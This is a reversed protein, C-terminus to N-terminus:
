RGLLTAEGQVELVKFGAALLEPMARGQITVVRNFQPTAMAQQFQPESAEDCRAWPINKGLYFFGPSGWVGENVLLMATAERGGKVWLRFQEPRQPSLADDGSGYRVLGPVQALGAAVSLVLAARELRPSRKALLWLWGPLAAVSLLVLAPYLFRAEKHPTNFIALLYAVAPVVPWWVRGAEPFASGKFGVVLGPWAWLVLALYFQLYFALPLSGFQQAAKGSLVNFDVYARLSHFPAGWTAWDLAGLLLAVVVGGALAALADRWRRQALVLGGAAAVPVLSGYRTVVACGLLAGGLAAPKVGRADLREVGWVLFATSWSEGMTRGAFHIVLGTLGLLPIAWLAREAGVRRATFRYAALLMAAHLAYQPVECVARRAQPHDLGVAACAKLLWAFLGPVAWNRLGTQWEWAMVGYGFAKFNAPELSQFLEDPHLRGLQFVAALAPPLACLLAVLLPRHRSNVCAWRAQLACGPATSRSWDRRYLGAM